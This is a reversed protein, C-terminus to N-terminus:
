DHTGRNGGAKLLLGAPIALGIVALLLSFKMHKPHYELMMTSEGAPVPVAQFLLQAPYVPATRGNVWARWGPYWAQSVWVFGPGTTRCHIEYADTSPLSYRCVGGSDGTLGPVSPGEYWLEMFPNRGAWLLKRAEMRDKVPTGKPFFRVRPVASPDRYIEYPPVTGLHILGDVKEKGTSFFLPAAAMSVSTYPVPHMSPYIEIWYSHDQPGSMFNVYRWYIFQSGRGAVMEIGENFFQNPLLPGAGLMVRPRVEGSFSRAAAALRMRLGDHRDSAAPIYYSFHAALTVAAVGVTCFVLMRAVGPRVARRLWAELVELGFGSLLGLPLLGNVLFRGPSRFSSAGPLMRFGKLLWQPVVMGLLLFLVSLFWLSIMRRDKRWFALLVLFCVVPGLFIGVEYVEAPPDGTFKPLPGFFFDGFQSPLLRFLIARDWPYPGARVSEGHALSSGLLEPIAVLVAAFVAAAAGGLFSRDRFLRPALLLIALIIM